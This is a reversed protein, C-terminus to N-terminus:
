GSGRIHANFMRALDDLTKDSRQHLSRRASRRSGGGPAKPRNSKRTHRSPPPVPPANDCSGNKSTM